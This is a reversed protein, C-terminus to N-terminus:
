THVLVPDPDCGRLAGEDIADNLCISAVPCARQAGEPAGRTLFKGRSKRARRLGRVPRGVAIPREFPLAIMSPVTAHYTSAWVPATPRALSIAESGRSGPAVVRALSPRPREFWGGTLRSRDAAGATM